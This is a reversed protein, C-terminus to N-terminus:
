EGEIQDLPLTCFREIGPTTFDVEQCLEIKKMEGHNFKQYISNQESDKNALNLLETGTMCPVEVTYKEKDIRIIYKKSKPPKNGSKAYEEIEIIEVLEIDVIDVEIIDGGNKEVTVIKEEFVEKIIGHEKTM